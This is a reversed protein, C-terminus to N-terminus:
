RPRRPMAFGPRFLVAVGDDYGKEFGYDRRESSKPQDSMKKNHQAEMRKKEDAPTLKPRKGTSFYEV